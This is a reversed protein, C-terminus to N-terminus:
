DLSVDHNAKFGELVFTPTDPDSSSIIRITIRQLGHDTEPLSEQFTATPEPVWYAVETEISFRTPAVLTPYPVATPNAQYPAAKILEMQRRALNEASVRYDVLRVSQGSTALGLVFMSLALAIIAIAVLESLLSIGRQDYLVRRRARIKRDISVRQERM